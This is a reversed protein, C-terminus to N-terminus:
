RRHCVGLPAEGQMQIPALTTRSSVVPELGSCLVGGCAATPLEQVVDGGGEAWRVEVVSM